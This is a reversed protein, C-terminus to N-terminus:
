LLFSVGFALAPYGLRLTLAVHETIHFRGGINLAPSIRTKDDFFRLGLGAEGFASWHQTFFFSWHAMLPVYLANSHKRGAFLDGGFSFGALNNITKVFGPDMLVLTGRFGVGLAGDEISGFGVLAHPEAEFRYLPHDGPSEILVPEARAVNGLLFLSTSALAIRSRM